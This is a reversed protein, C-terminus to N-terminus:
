QQPTFNYDINCQSYNCTSGGKPLGGSLGNRHVVTIFYQKGVDLNPNDTKPQGFANLPYGGASFFFTASNGSSWVSGAGLKGSFDCPTDSISIVRDNYAFQDSPLFWLTSRKGNTSSSPTITFVIADNPGFGGSDKTVHVGAKYTWPLAIVKTNTIGPINSCSITGGGGGGGGPPDQPPTSGVGAVTLTKIGTGSGTFTYTFSQTNSTTNAPVVDTCKTAPDGVPLCGGFNPRNSSWTGSTGCNSATLVVAGGNTPMNSINASVTCAPGGGGGDGGGCNITVNGAGDVSSTCASGNVTITLASSPTPAFLFASSAAAALTRTITRVIHM